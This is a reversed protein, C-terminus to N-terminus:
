LFLCNLSLGEGKRRGNMGVGGRGFGVGGGKGGKMDQEGGRKSWWTM